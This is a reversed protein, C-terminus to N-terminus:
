NAFALQVAMRARDEIATLTTDWFYCLFNENRAVRSIKILNFHQYREFTNAHIHSGRFILSETIEPGTGKKLVIDIENTALRRIKLPKLFIKRLSLPVNQLPVSRLGMFILRRGHGPPVRKSIEDQFFSCSRQYLVIM